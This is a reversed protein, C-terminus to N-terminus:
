RQMVLKVIKREEGSIIEAYYIGDILREGCKIEKDGSINQHSEVVRGALDFINISFSNNEPSNIVFTFDNDSPNPFVNIEWDNDAINSVDERCPTAVSLSRVASSGCSRNAKVTVTGSKKGFKINVSTTGQGSNITAGAPKTWTYSTAGSVAAISYIVNNQNQCVSTPGSIAGPQAPIGTVAIGSSGSTGCSNSATVSITGSLFTSIFSITVTTTGQGSTITAGAPVIWNYTTAYTVPSISYSATSGCIGGTQGTISGPTAPIVNATVAISNSTASGCSNSVACNYNGSISASYSSLTAGSINIGNLKWQYSLGSGTNANLTITAPFCFTTSGTASITATLASNVTVSISNSTVSGCSNSVILDYNGTVSAYYATSTAGSINGGNLRWQYTWGWGSSTAYLFSTNPSCVAPNGSTISAVPTSQVTVTIYNSSSLGCINTVFCNYGGSSNAYYYSQTAGSIAAGDKRWQYTLGAGTNANLLVFGSSCFTTAGAATITAPPYGVATVAISNSTRQGCTNTVFCDYNGTASVARYYSTAGSINIGNQRWQYTCGYCTSVSLTVPSYMCISTPGGATAVASPLVDAQVHIYNSLVSGCSNTVLCNYNGTATAAYSSSTAGTVNNDNLQWQYLLGAGTNANLTVSGPACFSTPGAATISASPITNVTVTIINSTASGCANTAICDYNGSASVSLSSSIAGTIINGNLRWQFTSGYTAYAYLYIYDPGCFTVPYSTTVSVVPDITITIATCITNGCGAEARVYYTTTVTPTVVISSGTGMLTGGCSGMYWFYDAGPALIGGSQTLTINNGACRPGAPSATVYSPAKSCMTFAIMNSNASFGNPSGCNNRAYVNYTNGSTLGNLTIPFSTIGNIVTGGIGPNADTGPTFGQHGYEITLNNGYCTTCPWPVNVSVSTVSSQTISELQPATCVNQNTLSFYKRYWGGQYFGDAMLLYTTGAVLPGWSLTLPPLVSTGINGICSWGTSDCSGSAAKYYLSAQNASCMCAYYNINYMGSTPPTFRFIKETTNNNTPGCGYNQWVGYIGNDINSYDFLSGCQLVPASACDQQTRFSVGGNGSSNGGCDTRIYVAYRTYPLLGTLTVPSTASSILIGEGAVSGTGPNFGEPGYELYAPNPCNCNFSITAQNSTVNGATVNALPACQLTVYLTGWSSSDVADLLLDYTVGAVPVNITYYARYTSFNWSSSDAWQCAYNVVNCSGNTQRMLVNVPESGYTYNPSSLSSVITLQYNGGIPPNFKLIQEEGYGDYYCGYTIYPPYIGMSYSNGYQLEMATGFNVYYSIPPCTQANVNNSLIFLLLAIIKKGASYRLVETSSFIKKFINKM